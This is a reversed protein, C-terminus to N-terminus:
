EQGMWDMTKKANYILSIGSLVCVGAAPGMGSKLARPGMGGLLALSTATALGHGNTNEGQKILVAAGGFLAAAGLGGFLSPLSNKKFYGM